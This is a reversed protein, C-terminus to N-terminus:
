SAPVNDVNYGHKKRLYEQAFSSFSGPPFDGTLYYDLSQKRREEDARKMAESLKAGKARKKALRQQFELTGEIAHVKSKLYLQTPFARKYRPNTAYKDPELGFEDLMAQNWGRQRMEGKLYFKSRDIM